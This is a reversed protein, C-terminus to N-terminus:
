SSYTLPPSIFSLHFCSSPHLSLSFFCLPLSLLLSLCGLKLIQFHWRPSYHPGPRPQWQPSCRPEHGQLLLPRNGGFAMCIHRTQAAMQVCIFAQSSYSVPRLGQRLMMLYSHIPDHSYSLQSGGRALKLVTLSVSVFTHTYFFQGQWEDSMCHCSPLLSERRGPRGKGRAAPLLDSGQSCSLQGQEKGAAASPFAARYRAQAASYLQSHHFFCPFAM